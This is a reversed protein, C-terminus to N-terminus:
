PDIVEKILPDMVISAKLAKDFELAFKVSEQNLRGARLLGDCLLLTLATGIDNRFSTMVHPYGRETTFPIAIM